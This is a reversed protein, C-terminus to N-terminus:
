KWNGILVFPAWYYPHAYPRKGQATPTTPKTGTAHAQRQVLLESASQRTLEGRLLKTQAQRLAEGKTLRQQERGRYFAEMLLRTTRDAVPWLSAIVAQAGQRQALVAFGEVEKGTADSSSTATDCASLTLLEVGSFVNPLAKIQALSLFKGDGLLLASDTENGPKFEFHSAVHLVRPRERLGALMAAQTFQEDLKVTGPMIGGSHSDGAEKIISRMEEAVSPLPSYRNGFGRTVGLGLAHWKTRAENSLRSESAPTFVVNRWREVLYKEGDHLTAIPLYRLVGDLSWMLTEAQAAKLDKLLPAVLIRYLEQALPLPDLAPNQLAARFALAKRNLDVAKIPYEYSKQVNATTLIVRFKNEGVLTHLAVTGRGLGRLVEKMGPTARLQVLRNSANPQKGFENALGDLFKQFMQGAVTLDAELQVLRQEEAATRVPKELLNGRETGLETLQEAIERYRKEIAAEAPTLATRAAKPSNGADRRLYDFYEEEKLMRIVQEAELLRGQSILLDALERYTQEKSNLFSQQTAQDLGSINSRMEQSLNVAQKGFFTSLQPQNRAKWDLMLGKLAFSEADRAKIERTLQLAQLDYRIAKEVEAARWVNALETLAEAEVERTKVKRAITLAQELSEVAKTQRGLKYHAMGLVVLASGEYPSSTTERISVLAQEVYEIAKEYNKANLHANSLNVLPVVTYEKIKTQGYRVLAQEIYEIAKEHRYLKGYITGLNELAAGEALLSKRERWIALAKEQYDIAKEYSGLLDYTNSLERYNEAEGVRDKLEICIPLAEEYYSLAKLYRSLQYNSYGIQHLTYAEDQRNQRERDILLMQEQCELAKDRLIVGRFHATLNNLTYKEILRHKSARSLALAKENYDFDEQSLRLANEADPQTTNKRIRAFLGLRNLTIIQGIQDNIEERLSLAQKLSASAQESKRAAFYASGIFDLTCAEWYKDGLARWLQLAQQYKELRQEVPLAFQGPRVFQGAEALLREAAVRQQNPATAADKVELLAQYSGKSTVQRNAAARLNLQYIGSVTAAYSLSEQGFLNNFNAELLKKGDPAALEVTIDVANQEIVVRMFQGATLTVTYSHTERNTAERTLPQNPALPTLEQAVIALAILSSLCLAYCLKISMAQFM